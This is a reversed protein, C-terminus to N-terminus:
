NHSNPSLNLIKGEQIIKKKKKKKLKKLRGSIYKYDKHELKHTREAIKALVEFLDKVEKPENKWM